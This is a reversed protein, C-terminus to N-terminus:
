CPMWHLCLPLIGLRLDTWFSMWYHKCKTGSPVSNTTLPDQRLWATETPEDIGRHERNLRWLLADDAFRLAVVAGDEVGEAALVEELLAVYPAADLASLASGDLEASVDYPM